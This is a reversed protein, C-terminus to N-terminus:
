NGIECIVTGRQSIWESLSSVKLYCNKDSSQYHYANCSNEGSKAGWNLFRKYCEDQCAELSPVNMSTTSVVDKDNGPSWYCNNHSYSVYAYDGEGRGGQAGCSECYCREFWSTTIGFKNDGCTCWDNELPCAYTNGPCQGRIWSSHYSIIVVYSNFHRELRLWIFPLIVFSIWGKGPHGRTRQLHQHIVRLKKEPHPITKQPSTMKVSLHKAAHRRRKSLPKPLHRQQKPAQM